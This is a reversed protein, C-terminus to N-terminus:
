DHLPGADVEVWVQEAVEADIALVTADYEVIVAPKRQRVIVHSGIVIGMAALRTARDPNTPAVDLVTLAAGLPALHLAIAGARKTIDIM